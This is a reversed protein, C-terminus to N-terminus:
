QAKLSPHVQLLSQTRKDRPNTGQEDEHGPTLLLPRLSSPSHQADQELQSPLSQHQEVPLLTCLALSPGLGGRRSVSSSYLIWPSSSVRLARSSSRLSQLLGFIEAQDTTDRIWDGM